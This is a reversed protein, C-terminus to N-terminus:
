LIDLSGETKMKNGIAATEILTSNDHVRKLFLIIRELRAATNLFSELIDERLLTQVAEDENKTQALVTKSSNDEMTTVIEEKSISHSYLKMGQSVMVHLTSACLSVQQNVEAWCVVPDM